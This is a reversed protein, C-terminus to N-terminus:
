SVDDWCGALAVAYEDVASRAGHSILMTDPAVREAVVDSYPTLVITRLGRRWARVLPAGVVEEPSHGFADAAPSPLAAAWAHFHARSRDDVGAIDFWKGPLPAPPTVRRGAMADVSTRGSAIVCRLATDWQTLWRVELDRWAPRPIGAVPQPPDLPRAADLQWAHATYALALLEDDWVVSIAM